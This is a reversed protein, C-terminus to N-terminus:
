IDIKEYSIWTSKTFFVIVKIKRSKLLTIPLLIPNIFCCKSSKCFLFEPIKISFFIIKTKVVEETLENYLCHAIIFIFTVRGTYIM